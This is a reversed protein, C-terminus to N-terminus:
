IFDKTGDLPDIIWVKEQYLRKNEKDTEESLIGYNLQKLKQLIVKESALDAQTVPSDGGKDRINLDQGYFEMVKKGAQKITSKLISLESM